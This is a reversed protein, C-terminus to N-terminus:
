EHNDGVAIKGNKVIIIEENSISGEDDYLIAGIEEVEHYYRVWSEVFGNIGNFEITEDEKIIDISYINDVHCNDCYILAGYNFEIRDM